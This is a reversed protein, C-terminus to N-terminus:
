LPRGNIQVVFTFPRGDIFHVTPAPNHHPASTLSGPFPFEFVWLALGTWRSMVIIFHIRVLLNDVFVEREPPACLCQPPTMDGRGGSELDRYSSDRYLAVESM